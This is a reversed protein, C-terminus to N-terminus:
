REPIPLIITNVSDAVLEQNIQMPGVQNCNKYMVCWFHIIIQKKYWKGDLTYTKVGTPIIKLTYPDVPIMINDLIIGDKTTDTIYYGYSNGLEINAPLPSFSSTFKIEKPTPNPNPNPSSSSDNGSKECAVFIITALFCYFLFSIKKM